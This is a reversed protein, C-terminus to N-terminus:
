AVEQVQRIYLHSFKIKIKRVTSHSNLHIQNCYKDNKNADFHSCVTAKGICRVTNINATGNVDRGLDHFIKYKSDDGYFRIYFMHLIASQLRRVEELMGTQRWISRVGLFSRNM